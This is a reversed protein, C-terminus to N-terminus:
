HLLADEKKQNIMYGFGIRIENFVHIDGEGDIFQSFSNGMINIPSSLQRRNFSIIPALINVSFLLDVKDSIKEKVNLVIPLELGYLKRNGACNCFSNSTFSETMYLVRPGVSFYSDFGDFKILSKFMRFKLQFFFEPVDSKDQASPKLLNFGAAFSYLRNTERNRSYEFAFGQSSFISREELNNTIRIEDKPYLVHRSHLALSSQANISICIFICYVTLSLKM